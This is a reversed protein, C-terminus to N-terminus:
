IFDNKQIGSNSALDNNKVTLKDRLRIFRSKKLIKLDINRMKQKEKTKRKM